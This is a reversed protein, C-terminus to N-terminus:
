SKRLNADLQRRKLLEQLRAKGDPTLSFKVGIEPLEKRAHAFICRGLNIAFGYKVLLTGNRGISGPMFSGEASEHFHLLAKDIKQDLTLKTM